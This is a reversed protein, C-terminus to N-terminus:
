PALRGLQWGTGERRYEFRDHLRSERGQWLEFREPVLLYGGWFDPLPLNGDPHERELEAVRQELAQRSELPRSQPSAAAGIQSGRPRSHFYTEAEARSLKTVRGEARVQRELRDWWLCIAANPNDELERGKRSQYNTFFRLGSGDLGKLLVMRVSPRGAKDATALAMSTPERLGAERADELWSRIQDSPDAALDDLDLAGQQYSIRIADLDM